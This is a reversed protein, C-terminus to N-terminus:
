VEDKFLNTIKKPILPGGEEFWDKSWSNSAIVKGTILAMPLVSYTRSDLSLSLNDGTVWVHGKPVEIYQNFGDHKIAELPTNTLESSTSPDILIMDGPMGTVRKCVRNLPDTPKATIVCDGMEINKGLKYTKLEHVWEGANAITPLMSEGMTQKFEYIDEQFIHAICGFRISWLITNIALSRFGKWGGNNNLIVLMPSIMQKYVSSHVWSTKIPMFVRKYFGSGMVMTKFGAFIGRSNRNSNRSNPGTGKMTSMRNRLM